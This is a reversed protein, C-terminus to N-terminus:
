ITRADLAYVYTLIYEMNKDDANAPASQALAAAPVTLAAFSLLEKKM